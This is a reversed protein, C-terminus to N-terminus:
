PAEHDLTFEVIRLRQVFGPVAGEKVLDDFVPQLLDQM